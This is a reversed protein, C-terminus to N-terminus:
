GEFSSTDIKINHRRGTNQAWSTIMYKTQDVNVELWSEKSSVVLAEAKKTMTYV